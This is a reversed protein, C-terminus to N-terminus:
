SKFFFYNAISNIIENIFGSFSFGIFLGLNGGIIGVLDVEGYILYEEQVSVDYSNFFVTMTIKNTNNDWTRSKYMNSHYELIECPELCKKTRGVMMAWPANSHSRLTKCESMNRKVNSLNYVTKLAPIMCKPLQSYYFKNRLMRFSFCLISLYLNYHPAHICKLQKKSRAQM